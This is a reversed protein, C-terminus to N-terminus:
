GTAGPSFAGAIVRSSSRVTLISSASPVSITLKSGSVVWGAVILAVQGVAEPDKELARPLVAWLATLAVGTTGFATKSVLLGFIRGAEKQKLLSIFFERM